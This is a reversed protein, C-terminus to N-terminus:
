NVKESYLFLESNEDPLNVTEMWYKKMSNIINEYEDLVFPKILYCSAGLKYCDYIDKENSSTSFMIVPISNFNKDAKIKGLLEKGNLGPLNLDMIILNPLSSTEFSGKKNLYALAEIGDNVSDLKGNFDTFLINKILYIDAESDDVILVRINNNRKM